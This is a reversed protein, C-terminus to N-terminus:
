AFERMTRQWDEDSAKPDIPTWPWLGGRKIRLPWNREDRDGRWAVMDVDGVENWRLGYGFEPWGMLAASGRPRM